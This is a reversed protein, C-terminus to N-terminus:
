VLVHGQGWVEVSWIANVQVYYFDSTGSVVVQYVIDQSDLTVPELQAREAMFIQRLDSNDAGTRKVLHHGTVWVTDSVKYFQHTGKFQRVETVSLLKGHDDVLQDGKVLKTILQLSGNALPLKSHGSFCIVPIIPPLAFANYINVQVVSNNLYTVILSNGDGSLAVSLVNTLNMIIAILDQISRSSTLEYIIAGESGGVALHNGSQDFDVSRGFDGTGSITLIQSYTGAAEIGDLNYVNVVAQDPIGAALKTGSANLAVSAGLQNDATLVTAFRIWQNNFDFIDIQGADSNSGIAIRTGSGNLAISMVNYSNTTSTIRNGILQNTSTTYVAAIDLGTAIGVALVSGSNSLAVAIGYQGGTGNFEHHQTWISNQYKYLAVLNSGPAGVALATGDGSLTVAFGFESALNSIDPQYQDWTSTTLNFNYILIRNSQYDSIVIVDGTDSIALSNGFNTNTSTIPPQSM